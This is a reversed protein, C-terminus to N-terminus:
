VLYSENCMGSTSSVQPLFALSCLSAKISSSPHYFQCTPYSLNWPCFKWSIQLIKKVLIIPFMNTETFTASSLPFSFVSFNLFFLLLSFKKIIYSILRISAHSFWIHNLFVHYQYFLYQVLASDILSLFHLCFYKIPLLAYSRLWM